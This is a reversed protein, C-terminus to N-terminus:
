TAGWPSSFVKVCRTKHLIFSFAQFMVTCKNKSDKETILSLFCHDCMGTNPCFLIHYFQIIKWMYFNLRKDTLYWFEKRQVFRADHYAYTLLILSICM